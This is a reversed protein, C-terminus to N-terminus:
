VAALASTEHHHILEDHQAQLKATLDRALETQSIQRSIWDFVKGADSPGPFPDKADKM